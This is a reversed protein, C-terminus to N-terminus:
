NLLKRVKDSSLYTLKSREHIPYTEGTIPNRGIRSPTKKYCFTGFKSIKITKTKSKLKIINIFGNLLENSASLSIQAKTSINRVIDKKGLSM